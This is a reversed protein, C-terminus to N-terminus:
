LDFQPCDSFRPLIHFVDSQLISSRVLRHFSLPDFDLFLFGLSTLEPNLTAKGWHADSSDPFPMQSTSFSPLTNTLRQPLPYFDSNRRVGVPAGLHLESLSWRSNAAFAVPTLSRGTGM